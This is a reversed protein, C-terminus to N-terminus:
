SKRRETDRGTNQDDIMEKLFDCVVTIHKCKYRLVGESRFQFDKCNCHWPNTELDVLNKPYFKISYVGQGDSSPLVFERFKETQVLFFVSSSSPNIKEESNSTMTTMPGTSQNM